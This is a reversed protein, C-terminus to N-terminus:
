QAAAIGRVNEPVLVITSTAADLVGRALDDGTVASHRALDAAVLDFGRQAAGVVAAVPLGPPRPTARHFSLVALDRASPLSAAFDSAALHDSRPDIEHWRLGPARETGVALDLGGGVPDADLALSRAGRRASREGLAATFTS